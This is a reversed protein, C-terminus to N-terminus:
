PSFDITLALPGRDPVGRESRNEACPGSAIGSGSRSGHEAQRRRISRLGDVVDGHGPGIVISGGRDSVQNIVVFGPITIFRPVIPQIDDQAGREARMWLLRRCEHRFVGCQTFRYAVM